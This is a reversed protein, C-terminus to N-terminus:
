KNYIGVQAFCYNDNWVGDDTQAWKDKTWVNDRKYFHIPAVFYSEGEPLHHPGLMNRLNNVITLEITNEGKCLVDSLDCMLHGWMLSPCSVGNVKVNLANVGKKSLFLGYCANGLNFTKKLTIRGSFFPFGQQEINSLEIEKKPASIEFEGSYRVANRELTEFEGETNVAFDGIVYVSEIETDFTLKNKETEFAMAKELDEYVKSNPAFDLQTSIVNEGTKLLRGLSIKRFSKDRFYGRDTRDIEKGNVKITFKEPTECVLFVNEPIDKVKFKYDCRVNVNRKLELAM